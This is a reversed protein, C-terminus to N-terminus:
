GASGLRDERAVRLV